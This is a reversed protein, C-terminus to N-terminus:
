RALRAQRRTFDVVAAPSAGAMQHGAVVAYLRTSRAFFVAHVQAAGGSQANAYSVGRAGDVGEVPLEVAQKLERADAVFHDLVSAAGSSRALQFVYVAVGHPDGTTASWTRVRGGTFGAAALVARDAEPAQSLRSVYLDLDFSRNGSEVARYGDPTTTIVTALDVPSPTSNGGACGALLLLALSIGRIPM